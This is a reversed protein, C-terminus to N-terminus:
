SFAMFRFCFYTMIIIHCLKVFYLYISGIERGKLHSPASRHNYKDNLNSSGSDDMFFDDDGRHNSKSSSSKNQRQGKNKDSIIHHYIATIHKIFM